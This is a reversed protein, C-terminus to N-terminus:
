DKAEYWTDGRGVSVVLPVSLEAVGEMEEQLTVAAQDEVAAPTEIVLEDHVTLLLRPAGSGSVHEKRWERSLRVDVEIMALKLLDAATGQIRANIAMRKANERLNRNRNKIDPLYRRRGYLTEVFGVEEAFALTEETYTRVGPFQDFYADIFRAAEKTPIGLRQSLGFASMGYVIGFNITKAARRQEATVLAEAVGFVAAATSQHVDGGQEFISILTKEEAIHALVRLEIQSYDAVLLRCGEEARFAKRVRLGMETRVPINQVNPKVSSLRGTAAVAQQYSTRLRGDEEVLVPLADVYTSRLKNIERFGLIKEPLEFGRNALEELTEANTSYSKTKRTRKVIPLGLKEFLIQGLQLPSNINFEEGALVYIEDELAALQEGMEQSMEALFECDVRIGRQEMRLLVPLLPVEISELVKRARGSHTEDDLQSELKPLLAVPLLVAEAAYQLLPAHDPMPVEEKTFGAEELKIVRHFLRDLAVETLTFGRTSAPLLYSMLMTDTLRCTVKEVACRKLTEKLDHGILEFSPDECWSALARLCVTRLAPDRFDCYYATPLHPEETNSEEGQHEVLVRKGPEGGDVVCALALGVLEGSRSVVLSIGVACGAAEGKAGRTFVGSKVSSGSSGSGGTCGVNLAQWHEVDTVRQAPEIDLGSSLGGSRRLEEVLSLFGMERYLQLLADQDPEEFAFRAADFDIELDCDITVLRQSLLAKDRHDQLGERYAKRKLEPAAKLLTELDGYERILTKAGKEGIGPVGPVNDSSDGMLALVDVVQHPPVGFDEAVLAPNYVKDRGTHLMSVDETILQMLDKDASVLIVRFGEKSAKKALTGLVDDAEFGEQQYVPINFGDIAQRIYPIQIKLDEPMPKRNAKYQAYEDSRFTKRSVDFAIGIYAPEEDRLLKRLMQVFGYVANTPLGSASSLNRIAYFARFITSFGDILYLTKNDSPKSM